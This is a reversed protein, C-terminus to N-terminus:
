RILIYIGDPMYNIEGIDVPQSFTMALCTSSMMFIAILLNFLRKM